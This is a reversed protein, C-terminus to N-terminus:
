APARKVRLGDPPVDEHSSAQNTAFKLPEESAITRESADVENTATSAVVTPELKEPHVEIRTHLGRAAVDRALGRVGPDDHELGAQITCTWDNAEPDEPRRALRNAAVIVANRALGARGARSLPTGQTQRSFTEEDM